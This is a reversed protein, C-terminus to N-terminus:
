LGAFQAYNLASEPHFKLEDTELTMSGPRKGATSFCQNVDDPPSLFHSFVHFFPFMPYKKHLSFGGGRPPQM